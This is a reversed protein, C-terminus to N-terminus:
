LSSVIMSNDCTNCSWLGTNMSSNVPLFGDNCTCIYDSTRLSNTPCMCANADTSGAPSLLNGPCSNCSGIQNNYYNAACYCGLPPPELYVSLAIFFSGTYGNIAGGLVWRIYRGSWRTSAQIDWPGPSNTFQLLTTQQGSFTSTNSLAISISSYLRGDKYPLAYIRTISYINGLDYQVWPLNGSIYNGTTYPKQQWNGPNMDGNYLKSLSSTPSNLLSSQTAATPIAMNPILNPDIYPVMPYTCSVQLLARSSRPIINEIYDDKDTSLVLTDSAHLSVLSKSSFASHSVALVLLAISISNEWKVM